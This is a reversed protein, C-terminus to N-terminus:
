INCRGDLCFLKDPLVAFGCIGTDNQNGMIEFLGPTDRILDKKEFVSRKRIGSRRVRQQATRM